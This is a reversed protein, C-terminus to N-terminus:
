ETNNSNLTEHTQPKRLVDCVMDQILMFEEHQSAHEVRTSADMYSNDENLDVHSM